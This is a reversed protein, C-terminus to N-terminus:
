APMSVKEFLTPAKGDPDYKEKLAAYAPGNFHRDFAAKDLFTSSYLMKIGGLGFCKDDMLRTYHYPQM